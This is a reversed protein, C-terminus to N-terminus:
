EREVYVAASRVVDTPLQKMSVADIHPGTVAVVEYKSGKASSPYGFCVKTSWRTGQVVANQQKYWRGDHSYVLVQVPEGNSVEGHAIVSYPVSAIFGIPQVPQSATLGAHILQDITITHAM